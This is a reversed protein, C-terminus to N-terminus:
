RILPLASQEALPPAIAGVVHTGIRAQRISKNANQLMTVRESHEIVVAVDLGDCSVFLADIVVSRAEHGAQHEVDVAGTRKEQTRCDPVVIVLQRDREGVRIQAARIKVLQRHTRKVYCSANKQPVAYAVLFQRDLIM